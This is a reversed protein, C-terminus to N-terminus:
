AVGEGHPRTFATVARAFCAMVQAQHPDEAMQAGDTNLRRLLNSIPGPGAYGVVAVVGLDGTSLKLIDDRVFITDGPSMTLDGATASGSLTLLWTEGTANLCWQSGAPLDLREFVFEPSVALLNRVESLRLQEFLGPAPEAQAVALSEEIHLDRGRGFDFLRFTVDVRQQMEAIVIGAGIAHITGAPIFCSDGPSVSRWLLLDAITGDEIAQRLQARSLHQTLGVGIRAGAAAEVVYWAENKGSPLGITLAYANNPHVQISLPQEAFLLKLSLSAAGTSKSEREYIIEGIRAGDHPKASWPSIDRMGWPKEHLVQRTREIPM